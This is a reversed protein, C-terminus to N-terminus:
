KVAFEVNWNGLIDLPPSHLFVLRAFIYVTRKAVLLM